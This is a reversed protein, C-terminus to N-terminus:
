TAPVRRRAILMVRGSARSNNDHWDASRSRDRNKCSSAPSRSRSQRRRALLQVSSTQRSRSRTRASQGWASSGHIHNRQFLFEDLFSARFFAQDQYDHYNSPRLQRNEKAKKMMKLASGSLRDTQWIKEAILAAHGLGRQRSDLVDAIVRAHKWLCVTDDPHHLWFIGGPVGPHQRLRKVYADFKHIVTDGWRQWKGNIGDLDPQGHGHLGGLAVSWLFPESRALIETVAYAGASFGFARPREGDVRGERSAVKCLAQMWAAFCEVMDIQLDGEIFGFDGGSNLIWFMGKPRLPTVVVCPGSVEEAFGEVGLGELGPPHNM